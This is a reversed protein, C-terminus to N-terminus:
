TIDSSNYSFTLKFLKKCNARGAAPPAVRYFIQAVGMAGIAFAVTLGIPAAFRGAPRGFGADVLPRRHDGVLTTEAVPFEIRHQSRRLLPDQHRYRFAAAVIQQHLQHVVFGGGLGTLGNNVAQALAAQGDM